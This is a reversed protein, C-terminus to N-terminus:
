LSIRCRPMLMRAPYNLLERITGSPGDFDKFVSSVSHRLPEKFRRVRHGRHNPKDVM